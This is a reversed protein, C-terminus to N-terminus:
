LLDTRPTWQVSKHQLQFELVKAVQHSSNVWQFLGHHQSPNPASPSPVVSSSIAPHCWRSSPCSNPYVRPTPSPCPRRAHQLEHPWLSNSVVSRSFQVSTFMSFFVSFVMGSKPLLFPSFPLFPHIFCSNFLKGHNLPIMFCTYYVNIEVWKLSLRYIHQTHRLLYSFIFM